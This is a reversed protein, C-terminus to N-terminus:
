YTWVCYPKCTDIDLHIFNKSIGVRFAPHYVNSDCFTYELIKMRQISDTCHIDVALGKCHSSTGSRGNKKEYEVSRYASNLVIPMGVYSRLDDLAILLQISMDSMSCSPICRKFEKESFYRPKYM